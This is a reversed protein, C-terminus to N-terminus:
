ASLEFTSDQITQQERFVTPPRDGLAVHPRRENYAILWEYTNERVQDM